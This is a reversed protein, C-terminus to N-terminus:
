KQPRTPVRRANLRRRLAEMARSPLDIADLSDLLRMQGSVLDVENVLPCPCVSLARRGWMLHVQDQDSHPCITIPGDFSCIVIGRAVFREFARNRPGVLEARAAAICAAPVPAEETPGVWVQRMCELDVIGSLDASSVWLLRSGSLVTALRVVGAYHVEAQFLPIRVRDGALMAQWGGEQFGHLILLGTPPRPPVKTVSAFAEARWEDLTLERDGIRVREPGGTVSVDGLAAAALISRARLVERPPHPSPHYRVILDWIELADGPRGADLLSQALRDGAADMGTCYFYRKWTPRDLHSARADGDFRERYRDLLDPPAHALERILWAAPDHWQDDDNVLRPDALLRAVLDVAEGWREEKMRRRLATALRDPQSEIRADLYILPEEEPKPASSCATLFLLLISRKV